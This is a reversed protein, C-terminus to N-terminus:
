YRVHLKEVAATWTGNCYGIGKLRSQGLEALHEESLTALVSTAYRKWTTQATQRKHHCVSRVLCVLMRLDRDLSSITGLRLRHMRGLEEQGAHPLESNTVM